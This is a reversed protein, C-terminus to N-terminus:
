KLYKGTTTLSLTGHKVGRTGILRDSLAKLEEGKGRVVLVELCNHEDLHIHLASLIKKYHQHQFETLLRSLDRKHHEYVMTITGATEANGTSWEEKVLLDRILDRIAESRNTYGKRSIVQDFSHLLKEDISVGFRVLGAM